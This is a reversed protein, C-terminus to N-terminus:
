QGIFAKINQIKGDAELRIYYVGPSFEASKYTIIKNIGGVQFEEEKMLQGKVNYFRLTAKDINSEFNMHCEIENGKNVYYFETNSTTDSPSTSFLEFFAEERNVTVCGSSKGSVSMVSISSDAIGDHMFSVEVFAGGNQIYGSISEVEIM